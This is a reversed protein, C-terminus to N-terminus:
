TRRLAAHLLENMGPRGDGGPAEGRGGGGYDGAASKALYPDAKALERLQQEVGKPQGDDTWEIASRDLLRVALEPNRFGLKTAAAVAASTLAASRVQERLARNEEELRTAAEATRQAESLGAQRQREAEQEAERQRTRYGANERRLEAMEREMRALRQEATEGDGTAPGAGAAPEQGQGSPPEQGSGANGAPPEAGAGAQPGNGGTSSPM